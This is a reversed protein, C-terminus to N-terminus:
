RARIAAFTLVFKVPDTVRLRFLWDRAQGLRRWTVRTQYKGIKGMDAWLENGWTHGGDKSIQLMCQPDSGQGTILGVGTEFDCYLEDVIVRKNSSFIHRGVIERVIATGNDTYVDPDLEYIDGTSYDAILTKNLFDLQMEGRHRAGAPGYELPSWMGTTADYLWSKSPTPFNVQLMPHGGLMYAYATADSVSSYNNILYDLEPTSIAKPVYGSIFMVQVQGQKNKMLGALGSNFKTLSWRAALGFEQTAGKITQFPFDAAGVSGWYETTSEGFLLVEGNDAFVRVVGDPASEATAFDLANWTTGDASIFVEDDNGDDVIFQSDLWACTKATQPADADAVVAFTAGSITYTYMNTGTTLLIVTGDYALDVRGSTTSITGRSTKTGANDVEYFTGRHVLYYLNGVAIWGRISTDGFSAGARLTLGPTGYFVLRSKEGEPVIEAYLNLHSQATSTSSKGQQNTGFLTIPVPNAPM